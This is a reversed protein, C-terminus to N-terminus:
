MKGMPKFIFRITKWRFVLVLIFLFAAPIDEAEM